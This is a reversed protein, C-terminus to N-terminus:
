CIRKWGKSEGDALVVWAETKRIRFPVTEPVGGSGSAGSRSSPDGFGAVQDSIRAPKGDAAGSRAGLFSEGERDLFRDFREVSGDKRVIRSVGEGPQPHQPNRAESDVRDVGGSVGRGGAKEAGRWRELEAGGRYVRWVRNPLFKVMREM